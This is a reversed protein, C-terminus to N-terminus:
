RPEAPLLALTRELLAGLRSGAARGVQVVEDHSLPGGAVGAAHNTILSIALCAMGLSRAVVVEPITSMGVADAGVKALARIEAPTEYSPGLVGAYVGRALPIGLEAAAALAARALQADYPASMDRVRSDPEGCPEALLSTPGFSLHDELLMLSGPELRRDVGGAANTLVLRRVGLRHAVRVPGCVVWPAHGEYLHFRGAQVLVKRGALRGALFRGAHGAVTPLPFGPLESFPIEVADQVADALGSLGSGLVLLVEARGPLREELRAAVEAPDFARAPKVV